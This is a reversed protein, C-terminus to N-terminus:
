SELLPTVPMAICRCQYDQGPHNAAGTRTDTVPPDDWSFVKGDLAEHGARVREDRSTIWEYQTVGAATQRAETIRGNLKLIQDRAILAARSDSVGFREVLERALVEVRTGRAHAAEVSRSVSALLSPRLPAAEFPAMIGSEILAINEERFVDIAQRMGPLRERLNIKLIRHLEKNVHGDVSTFARRILPTLEASRLGRGLDLELWDLQRRVAEDTVVGPRVHPPLPGRIGAAARLWRRLDAKVAEAERDDARDGTEVPWAELLPLLARVTRAQAEGWVGALAAM